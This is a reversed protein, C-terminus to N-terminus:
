AFSRQKMDAVTSAVGDAFMVEASWGLLRNALEASAHVVTPSRDAQGFSLLEAPAGTCARITEAIERVTPALGSSLNLVTGGPLGSRAMAMLGSVIDDVHIMDRRDEPSAIRYPQGDLCRRILSPVLFADSQGPGYTLALRATMARFPLEPQIMRVYHTGTLLTLGYPYLPSERQTEVAPVPGDGYEAISGSRVFSRIAPRFRGAVAMMRVLNAVDGLWATALPDNADGAGHRTRTALHYVLHPRSAAFGDEISEIDGLDVEIPEAGGASGSWGPRVAIHVQEGAALHRAALHSGIFGGGGFILVRDAM